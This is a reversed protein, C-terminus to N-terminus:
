LPEDPIEVGGHARALNRLETAQADLEDALAPDDSPLCAARNWRAECEHPRIPCRLSHETLRKEGPRYQRNLTFLLDFFSAQVKYRVHQAFVVDGRAQARRLQKVHFELLPTERRLLAIRTAEPFESNLRERVAGLEGTPDFLPVGHAVSYMVATTFGNSVLGESYARDVDARVDAWHFYILEVLRGELKLHDELGWSNIGVRVTSPDAIATLRATRQGQEALPAEWFVHIDLDSLADGLGAGVSGGLSACVVGSIDSVAEVVRPATALLEQRLTTGM